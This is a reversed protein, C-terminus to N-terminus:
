ANQWRKKNSKKISRVVFGDSSTGMSAAVAATIVAVLELDDVLEEEEKQVIQAITNDVAMAAVDSKKEKKNKLAQEAKNILTFCSILLSILILVVFVVSIGILTNLGAKSMKEALTYSVNFSSYDISGDELFTLKFEADRISYDVKATVTLSDETAEFNWDLVGVYSGVEERIAMWSNFVGIEGETYDPFYSISALIDENTVDSINQLTTTIMTKYSEEDYTVNTMTSAAKDSACATMTLMCVAM